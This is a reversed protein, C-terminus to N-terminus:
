CGPSFIVNLALMELLGFPFVLLLQSSKWLLVIYLDVQSMLVYRVNRWKLPWESVEDCNADM